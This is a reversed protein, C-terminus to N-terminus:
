EFWTMFAAPSRSSGPKEWIWSRKSRRLTFRPGSSRAIRRRVPSSRFISCYWAPSRNTSVTMADRSRAKMFRTQCPGSASGLRSSIRAGARQIARM